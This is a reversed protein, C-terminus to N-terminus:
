PFKYGFCTFGYDTNSLHLSERLVPAVISLSQRDVFNIVTVFFLLARQRSKM